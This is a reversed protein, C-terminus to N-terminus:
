ELVLTARVSIFRRPQLWVLQNEDERVPDLAHLRFKRDLLNEVGLSVIGRRQSLRYGISGDWMWFRSSVPRYEGLVADNYNGEQDYYSGTIGAFFGQSSFFRLGIPVRDTRLRPVVGEARSMKYQESFYELSASIRESPTWYVYARGSGYRVSHDSMQGVADDQVLLSPADMDRLTLESGFSIGSSFRHDFGVGYIKSEAGALDDFFQKFGAVQTPEITQNGILNRNMARMTAFRLSTAAGLDWIVGLKPHVRHKDGLFMDRRRDVSAGVTVNVGDSAAILSYLYFNVHQLRDAIDLDVIQMMPSLSFLGYEVRERGAYRGGGAIFKARFTTAIYQAESLRAVQGGTASYGYSAPFGVPSEDRIDEDHNRYITSLIVTSTPAIEYRLGLRYTRTMADKRYTASYIDPDYHLSLFGNEVENIRAEGQISISPTMGVQVFANYIRQDIGANERWGGTHYRFQGLSWSYRDQLGSLILEDGWTGHEGWVGSGLFQLRDRDFLQTYENFAAGVAGSGPSVLSDDSLSPQVPNHNIPQLLQSTLLASQRAIDSQPLSAYSDALLRHASYNMPDTNVSRWGEILARQGFGLDEYIRGRSVSRAALDRDLLLRSRYPARNDNLEISREIDRMAEVPRNVTQKRVSDYTYPTPDYPGFRRALDLQIASARDRREEYYAKGLYSRILPNIPDLVAAIEIEARGGQLDGRRIRALGLGLRPLPDASNLEISRKFSARAQAIQIRTLYAFGLVTQYRAEEPNLEGARAAADVAEGLHGHAMWLEATRAWALASGPDIRVAAQAAALAEPLNVNAQWAYSLAIQVSASDRGSGAARLALELAREPDNQVVAILAQLALAFANGPSLELAQAIDARAEDVRGISLRLSARYAHFRPDEVAESVGDIHDFATGLDGKRWAELSARVAAQWGTVEELQLDRLNLVPPYFLAWALADRPSVVLRSVPAEGAQVLSSEGDTVTLRGAENILHMTGEIVTLSATGEEEDVEILYETGGSAANVFPTEITLPRPFRSMFFAKGRFLRLLIPTEDDEPVFRVMSTQDLRVVTENRLRIAARSNELTRLEDGGCYTEGLVASRWVDDDERRVEVRGEISVIGAVWDACQAFAAASAVIGMVLMAMLLLMCRGSM